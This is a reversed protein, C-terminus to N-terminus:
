DSVEGRGVWNTVTTSSQPELKGGSGDGGRTGMAAAQALDKGDRAQNSDWWSM